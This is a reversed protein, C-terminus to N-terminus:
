CSRMQGGVPWTTTRSGISSTKTARRHGSFRTAGGIKLCALRQFKGLKCMRKKIKPKLGGFALTGDKAKTGRVVWVGGAYGCPTILSVSTGMEDLIERAKATSNSVIRLHKRRERAKTVKANNALIKKISSM